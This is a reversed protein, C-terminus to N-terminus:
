AGLALKAAVLQNEFTEFKPHDFDFNFTEVSLLRHIFSLQVTWFDDKFKVDAYTNTGVNHFGLYRNNQSRASLTYGRKTMIEIIDSPEKINM